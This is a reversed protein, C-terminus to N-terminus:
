PNGIIPARIAADCAMGIPAPLDNGTALVVIDAEVSGDEHHVLWLEGKRELSMVREHRFRVDLQPAMGVWKALYDQLYEGYLPRPLFMAAFDSKLLGREKLWEAFQNPNVPDISMRSAPVNLLHNPNATAYAVGQGPVASSGVVTVDLPSQGNRALACLLAVASAGNGCIVLSRRRM